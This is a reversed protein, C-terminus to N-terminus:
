VFEAIAAVPTQDKQLFRRWCGKETSPTNCLRCVLHGISQAGHRVCGGRGCHNCPNLPSEIRRREIEIWEKAAARLRKIGLIELLFEETPWWQAIRQYQARYGHSHIVIRGALEVRAIVEPIFSWQAPHVGIAVVLDSVDKFSYFGCECDFNPARHTIRDRSLLLGAKAETYGIEQRCTAEHWTRDDSQYTSEPGQRAFAILQRNSVRFFRWGVLPEPVVLKGDLAM